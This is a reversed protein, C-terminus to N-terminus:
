EVVKRFEEMSRIIHFNKHGLTKAWHYIDRQNESLKSTKTKCEIVFHRGHNAYISFDFEGPRRTTREAMSSHFYLWHRDKCYSIIDNHLVDEETVANTSDIVRETDKGYIHPNKARFSKSNSPWSM